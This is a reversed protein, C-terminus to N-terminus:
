GSISGHIGRSMWSTGASTSGNLSLLRFEASLWEAAGALVARWEKSLEPPPPFPFYSALRHAYFDHLFDGWALEFERGARLQSGLETYDRPRWSNKSPPHVKAAKITRWAIADIEDRKSM